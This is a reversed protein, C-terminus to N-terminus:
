RVSVSKSSNLYFRLLADAWEGAYGVGIRKAVIVESKRVKAGNEVWIRNSKSLDEGYFTEDLKLYKSVKGPGSATKLLKLRDEHPSYKALRTFSLELAPEIARILIAQGSNKKGATFNLQWHVGYIIFMYIFGGGCFMIETRKTRLGEFSHAARDKIGLYAEVEVIRGGWMGSNDQRVIRKGLLERSVVETKGEFFRKGLRNM